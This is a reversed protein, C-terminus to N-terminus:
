NIESCLALFAPDVQPNVSNASIVWSSNSPFYRPNYPTLGVAADVKVAVLKTPSTLQTVSPFTWFTLFWPDQPDHQAKEVTAEESDNFAMLPPSM